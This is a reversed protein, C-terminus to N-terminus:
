ALDHMIRPGVSYSYSTWSRQTLHVSSARQNTHARMRVLAHVCFLGATMRVCQGGHLSSDCVFGFNTIEFVPTRQWCIASTSMSDVAADLSARSGLARTGHVCIELHARIHIDIYMYGYVYVFRCMYLQTYIYTCTCLRIHMHNYVYGINAHRLLNDFITSSQLGCFLVTM